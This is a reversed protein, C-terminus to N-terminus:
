VESQLETRAREIKKELKGLGDAFRQKSSAWTDESANEIRDLEATLEAKEQRLEERKEQGEASADTELQDLKGDIQALRQKATAVFEAKTDGLRDGAREVADEAQEAAARVDEAEPRDSRQCSALGLQLLGACVTGAWAVLSWRPRRM